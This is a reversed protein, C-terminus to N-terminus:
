SLNGIQERSRMTLNITEMNAYTYMINGINTINVVKNWINSIQYHFVRYKFICVVNYKCDLMFCIDELFM